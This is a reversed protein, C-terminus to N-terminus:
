SILRTFRCYRLSIYPNFLQPREEDRRSSCYYPCSRHNFCVRSCFNGVFVTNFSFCLASPRIVTSGRFWCHLVVLQISLLRALGILSGTSLMFNCQVPMSSLRCNFYPLTFSAKQCLPKAHQNVQSLAAFPIKVTHKSMKNFSLPWLEHFLVLSIVLWIRFLISSQSIIPYVVSARSCHSWIILFIRCQTDM